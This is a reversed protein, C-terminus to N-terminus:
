GRGLLAILISQFTKVKEEWKDLIKINLMAVKEVNRYWTLIENYEADAMFRPNVTACGAVQFFKDLNEDITESSDVFEQIDFPVQTGEPLSKYLAISQGRLDFQREYAETVDIGMKLYSNYTLIRAKLSELAKRYLHTINLVDTAMEGVTNLLQLNGEPCKAFTDVAQKWLENRKVVEKLFYDYGDILADANVFELNEYDQTRDFNPIEIPLIITTDTEDLFENLVDILDGIENVMAKEEEVVGILANFSNYVRDFVANYNQRAVNSELEKKANVLQIIGVMNNAWISNKMASTNLAIAHVDHGLQQVYQAAELSGQVNNSDWGTLNM